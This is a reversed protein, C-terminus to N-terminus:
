ELLSKGLTKLSEAEKRSLQRMVEAYSYRYGLKKKWFTENIKKAAVDEPYM